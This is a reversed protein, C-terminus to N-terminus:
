LYLLLFKPSFINSRNNSAHISYEYFIQTCFGIRMKYYEFPIAFQFQLSSTPPLNKYVGAIKFSVPKDTEYSYINISQGLPNVDGFLKKSLKESLVINDPKSLIHELNGYLLPFSLMRFWGKDVYFGNEKVYNEPSGIIKDNAWIYQCYDIVEPIEEMVTPALLVSSADSYDNTISDDTHILKFVSDKNEHFQDFSAIGIITMTLAIAVAMGLALGSINIITYIKNKRLSNIAHKIQPLM